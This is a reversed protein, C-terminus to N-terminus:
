GVIRVEKIAKKKQNEIEKSVREVYPVLSPHQSQNKEEIIGSNRKCLYLLLGYPFKSVDLETSAAIDIVAYFLSKRGYLKLLKAILTYEAKSVSISLLDRMMTSFFGVPNKVEFLEKYYDGVIGEREVFEMYGGYIRSPDSFGGVRAGAL